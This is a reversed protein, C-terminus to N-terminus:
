NQTTTTSLFTNSICNLMRGLKNHTIRDISYQPFPFPKRWVINDFSDHVQEVNDEIM